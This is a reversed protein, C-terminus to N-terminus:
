ITRGKWKIKGPIIAQLGAWIIYIQYIIWSLPFHKMAQPTHHQYSLTRLFSYDMLFKASTFLCAAIVMKPWFIVSFWMMWFCLALIFAIGQVLIIKGNAYSKTKQAWRQRQAKLSRLTCLAQTSVSAYFSSLFAVKKGTLQAMKSMLFVDDGSSIHENGQYGNVEIFVSKRFSMNAGNALFFWKRKIGMATLAMTAAFDLWQFRSLVDNVPSPFVLGTTMVTEHSRTYEKSIETLWDMSPASDGDTVAICESEALTVGLSIAAKKGHKEAPLHIYKIKDNQIGFVQERTGDDSHDDMVIIEHLMNINNQGLIALLCDRIHKEENRVAIIVTIKESTDLKNKLRNKSKSDIIALWLLAAYIFIFVFSFGLFIM